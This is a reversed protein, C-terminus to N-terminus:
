FMKFGANVKWITNEYLTIQLNLNQKGAIHEKFATIQLIWSTRM